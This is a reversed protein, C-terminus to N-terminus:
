GSKENEDEARIRELAASLKKQVDIVLEADELKKKLRAVERRLREIERREAKAPDRAPGRRRSGMEKLAGEERQQRWSTLHSSYLGERRLLAGVAGPETCADAERLIRLKYEVTFTRRRAKAPVEPDPASAPDAGSRQASGADEPARDPGQARDENKTSSM